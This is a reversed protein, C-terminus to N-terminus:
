NLGRIRYRSFRMKNFQSPSLTAKQERKKKLRDAIIRETTVKWSEANLEYEIWM